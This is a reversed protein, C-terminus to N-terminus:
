LTGNSEPTMLKDLVQLCPDVASTVLRELPWPMAKAADGQPAQSGYVSAQARCFAEDDRIKHARRSQPMSPQRPPESRFLATSPSARAPQRLRVLYPGARTARTGTRPWRRRRRVTSGRCPAVLTWFCLVTAKIYSRQEFSYGCKLLEESEIWISEFYM